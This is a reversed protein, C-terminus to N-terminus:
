RHTHSTRWVSCNRKWILLHEVGAADSVHLCEQTISPRNHGRNRIMQMFEKFDMPMVRDIKEQETPM